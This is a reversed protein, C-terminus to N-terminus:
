GNFTELTQNNTTPITAVLGVASVSACTRKAADTIFGADYPDDIGVVDTLRPLAVILRKEANHVAM